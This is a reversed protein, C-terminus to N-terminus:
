IGCGWRLYDRAIRASEFRNIWECGAPLGACVVGQYGIERLARVFGQLDVTGLGLPVWSRGRGRGSLGHDIDKVHIYGVRDAYDHLLSVADVGSVVAHGADVCLKVYAPDTLEMLLDTEERRSVPTYSHPNHLITVGRTAGYAGLANLLVAEREIERRDMPATLGVNDPWNPSACIMYSGGMEAIYDVDARLAELGEEMNAYLCVMRTGYCACIGRVEGATLHRRLFTWNEVAEYGLYAIERVSEELHARFASPHGEDEKVWMWGTYAAIM